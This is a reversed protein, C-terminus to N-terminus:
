NIERQLDNNLVLMTWTCDLSIISSRSSHQGDRRTTLIRPDKNQVIEFSKEEMAVSNKRNAYEM